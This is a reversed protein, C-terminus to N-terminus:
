PWHSPYSPWTQDRSDLHHFFFVLEWFTDESKQIFLYHKFIILAQPQLFLKTPLHNSYLYPFRKSELVWMFIRPIVMHMQLKLVTLISVPPGSPSATNQVHTLLPGSRQEQVIILQLLHCVRNKWNMIWRWRLYSVQFKRNRYGAGSECPLEKHLGPQSWVKLRGIESELNGPIALAM